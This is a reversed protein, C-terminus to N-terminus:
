EERLRDRKVAKVLRTVQHIKPDMQCFEPRGSRLTALLEKPTSFPALEMFCRGLELTTHADSGVSVPLNHARAYERARYNDEDRLTRANYGEFIDVSGVIEDLIEPRLASSTRYTCFPHPVLVLGGQDHIRDVTEAASLYPPVEETLFLGIIEGSETMIEESLIPPVEPDIARIGAYAERSGATTNHDCVLCLIGQEKRLEIIHRPDTISDGSHWTHVHMDFKWFDEDDGMNTRVRVIGVRGKTSRGIRNQNKSM